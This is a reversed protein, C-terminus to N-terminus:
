FLMINGIQSIFLLNKEKIYDAILKSILEKLANYYKEPVRKSITKTPEKKPQGAGPRPGGRNEKKKKM